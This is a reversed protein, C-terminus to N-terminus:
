GEAKLKWSWLTVCTDHSTGAKAKLKEAVEQYHMSFSPLNVSRLLLALSEQSMM